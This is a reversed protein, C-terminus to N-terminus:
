WLVNIEFWLPLSRISSYQYCYVQRKTDTINRLDRLQAGSFRTTADEIKVSEFQCDGNEDIVFVHFQTRVHPNYELFKPDLKKIMGKENLNFASPVPHLAIRAPTDQHM